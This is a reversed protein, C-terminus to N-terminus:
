EACLYRLRRGLAALESQVGPRMLTDLIHDFWTCNQILVHGCADNSHWGQSIAVAILCLVMPPAAIMCCHLGRMALLGGRCRPSAGSSAARNVAVSHLAHALCCVTALDVLNHM